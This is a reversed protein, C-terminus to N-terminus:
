VLLNSVFAHNLSGHSVVVVVVSECDVEVVKGVSVVDVIVSVVISSEVSVVLAFVIVVVGLVVASVVISGNSVEITGNLSVVLVVIVAAVAVSEDIELALEVKSAVDDESGEVSCVVSDDVSSGVVSDDM